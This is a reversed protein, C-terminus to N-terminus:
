RITKQSRCVFRGMTSFLVFIRRRRQISGVFRSLVILKLVVELMRRKNLGDKDKWSMLGMAVYQPSKIKIRNFNKDRIVFGEYKTVDLKAAAEVVTQLNIESFSRTPACNWKYKKAYLEPEYEVFTDLDRVGHLFVDEEQYQILVTNRFSILEFM